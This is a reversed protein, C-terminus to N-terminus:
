KRKSPSNLTELFNNEFIQKDAGIAVRVEPCGPYIQAAGSSSGENVDVCVSLVDFIALTEDVLIAAALPDWFFYADAQIMFLNYTLVDLIFAAEPESHKSELRNYFNMDLPVQNTADLPVLTVPVGSSLVESAALPDIYFNFEATLNGKVYAGVNGPVDIAGGMIYIMEISDGLMPEDRLLDAINTLPGLTLITVKQDSGELISKLLAQANQDVVPNIAEPLSIGVLSDVFNRWEQPFTHDGALPTERGCAVPINDMGALEILRLANSVGPGCTAEGAGTVTIAHVMVDVRNLLYLIAMWDDIAMDTDIVVPLPDPSTIPEPGPVACGLVVLFVLLQPVITTLRKVNM